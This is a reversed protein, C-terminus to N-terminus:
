PRAPTSTTEPQKARNQEERAQRHAERALKDVTQNFVATDLQWAEHREPKRYAMDIDTKMWTGFKPEPQKFGEGDATEAETEAGGARTFAEPNSTDFTGCLNTEDTKVTKVDLDKGEGRLYVYQKSSGDDSNDEIDESQMDMRESAEDASTGPCQVYFEQFDGGYIQAFTSEAYQERNDDLNRSIEKGCASLGLMMPAILAVM